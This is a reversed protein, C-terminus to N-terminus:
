RGPDWPDRRRNFIPAARRNEVPSRRRTRPIPSLARLGFRFLRHPVRVRTLPIPHGFPADQSHVILTVEAFQQFSHEGIGTELHLGGGTGFLRKEDQLTGREVDQQRIQHHRLHIPVFEDV